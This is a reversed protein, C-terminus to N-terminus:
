PGYGAIFLMKDRDTDFTVEENSRNYFTSPPPNKSDYRNTWTSTAIDFDYYSYYNIYLVVKDRVPDYFMPVNYADSPAAGNVTVMTWNRTTPSWSWIDGTVGTGYGGWLLLQDRKSDYIMPAQQRGPPKPNANTRNIWTADTGSWEWTDQKNLGDLNSYGGFLMLKGRM